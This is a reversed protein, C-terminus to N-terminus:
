KVKNESRPHYKNMVNLLAKNDLHMYIETTTISQHGLLQQISKLDAGNELLHTAFSHRFSHPSIKKNSFLVNYRKDVDLRFIFVDKKSLNKIPIDTFNNSTNSLIGMDVSKEWLLPQANLTYFTFFVLGILTILKRM